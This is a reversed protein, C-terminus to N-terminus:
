EKVRILVPVRAEADDPVGLEVHVHEFAAMDFVRTHIEELTAQTCWRRKPIGKQAQKVIRKPEVKPRADTTVLLPGVKYRKGLQVSLRARPPATPEEQPAVQAKLWGYQYLRRGLVDALEQHCQGRAEGQAVLAPMGKLLCERQAHSLSELGTVDAQTLSPVGPPWCNALRDLEDGARTGRCSFEEEGDQSEKGSLSKWWANEPKPASACATLLISVAILRLLCNM